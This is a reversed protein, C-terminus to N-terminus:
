YISMYYEYLEIYADVEEKTFNVDENLRFFDANSFIVHSDETVVAIEKTDPNIEYYWDSVFVRIYDVDRSIKVIFNVGYLRLDYDGIKVNYGYEYFSYFYTQRANPVEPTGTFSFDTDNYDEFEISVNMTQGSDIRYNFEMEHILDNTVHMVFMNLDGYNGVSYREDNVKSVQKDGYAGFDFLHIMDFEPIDFSYYNNEMWLIIKKEGNIEKYIYPFDSYYMLSVGDKYLLTISKDVELESNTISIVAKYSSLEEMNNLPTPINETTEITTTSENTTQEGETQSGNCASMALALLFLLTFITFRKM